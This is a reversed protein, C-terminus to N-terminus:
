KKQTVMSRNKLNSHQTEIYALCSEDEKLQIQTARILKKLWEIRSSTRSKNEVENNLHILTHLEENSMLYQENSMNLTDMAQQSHTALLHRETSVKETQTCNSRLQNSL